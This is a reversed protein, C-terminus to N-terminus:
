GIADDYGVGWAGGIAETGVASGDDAHGVDIGEVAYDYM